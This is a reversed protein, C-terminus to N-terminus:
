TEKVTQPATADDMFYFSDANKQLHVGIDLAALEFGEADVLTLRLSWNYLHSNIVETTYMMPTISKTKLAALLERNRKYGLLIGTTKSADMHPVMSVFLPERNFLMYNTLADKYEVPIDPALIVVKEPEGTKRNKCM